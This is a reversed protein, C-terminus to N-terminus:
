VIRKYTDKSGFPLNQDYNKNTKDIFNDKTLEQSTREFDRDTAVASINLTDSKRRGRSKDVM